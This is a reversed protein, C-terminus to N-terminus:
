VISFKQLYFWKRKAPWFLKTTLKKTLLIVKFDRLVRALM